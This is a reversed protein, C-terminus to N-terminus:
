HVLEVLFQQPTLTDGGFLSGAFNFNFTAGAAWSGGGSFAGSAFTYINPAGSSLAQLGQVFAAQWHTNDVFMVTGVFLAHPFGTKVFIASGCMSNGSISFLNFGPNSGGGADNFGVAITFRLGQSTNTVVGGPLNYTFVPNATTAALNLQSNLVNNVGSPIFNATVDVWAAGNWQFIHGTDTAFYLIGFGTGGWTANVTEPAPRNALTGALSTFRQMVDDKLNRIDQGLLNALQTDPPQTIDWVHDFTPPYPM